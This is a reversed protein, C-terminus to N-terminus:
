FSFILMLFCKLPKTLSTRGLLWSWTQPEAAGAAVSHHWTWSALTAEEDEGEDRRHAPLASLKFFFVDISTVPLCPYPSCSCLEFCHTLLFGPSHHLSQVLKCNSGRSKWSQRCPRCKGPSYEPSKLTFFFLQDVFFSHWIFMVGGYVCKTIISPPLM